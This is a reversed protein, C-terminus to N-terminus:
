TREGCGDEDEEKDADEETDASRRVKEKDVVVARPWPLLGMGGSGKVVTESLPELVADRSTLLEAEEDGDNDDPAASRSPPSPPPPPPPPPPLPQAALSM